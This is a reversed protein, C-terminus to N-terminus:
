LKATATRVKRLNIGIAKCSLTTVLMDCYQDACTDSLTNNRAALGVMSEADKSELLHSAALSQVGEMISSIEEYSLLETSDEPLFSSEGIIDVDTALKREFVQRDATSSALLSFAILILMLAAILRPRNGCISIDMTVKM